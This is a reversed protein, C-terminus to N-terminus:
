FKLVVSWFYSWLILSGLTLHIYTDSTFPELFCAIIALNWVEAATTNLGENMPTNVRRLNITIM